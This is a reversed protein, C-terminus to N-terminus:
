SRKKEVTKKNKIDKAHTKKEDPKPYYDETKASLGKSTLLYELLEQVLAYIVAFIPVGLLMGVFGFLGGGLFIAFMVWFAPLGTTDGLIFPGIINGDLQQLLFILLIFIFTKSPDALLILLASPIAGIFPGFFPIINTVGIIVSILLPYDLKMLTMAIFCFMGIITSDLIKGSIFGSLSQNTRRAIKFLENRAKEHFLATVMKKIMAIFKEKDLLLYVAVIFGILFDKLAVAFGVAGDKLKIAWDGVKPIINNLWSAVTSQITELQTNVYNMIEPYDNLQKNVWDYLNNMYTPVSEFISMLSEIVQPVIIAILACIVAIGFVISLFTSIFRCVKPHPKKKEIIKKLLQECKMMIPNLLYAIIVGWSIAALTDAATKLTGWISEFNMAVLVIGLCCAFTIVTYVSITTYKSNWEVKM